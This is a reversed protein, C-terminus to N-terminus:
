ALSEGSPSLERSDGQEEGKAFTEEPMTTINDPDYRYKPSQVHWDTMRSLDHWGAQGKTLGAVHVPDNVLKGFARTEDLESCEFWLHEKDEPSDAGDVPYGLKIFFSWGERGRFKEFARRFLDFRATALREMRRTEIDSVYLVPNRSMVVLARRPSVYRRFPWSGRREVLVGSPLRHYDDRDRQRTGLRGPMYRGAEPWPIWEMEIGDGPSFPTRPPETGHDIAGICVTEMLEVILGVAQRPADIFEFEVSGCRLLGHTHLWMPGGPDNQDYVTHISFLNRPHPPVDCAAVERLWAGSHVVCSSLDLCAPSGPALASVVRALRHFGTLPNRGLETGAGIAWPTALAAAREAEPLRRSEFHWEELEMRRQLWVEYREKEQGAEWQVEIAAKWKEASGREVPIVAWDTVALRAGAQGSGAQPSSASGASSAQAGALVDSVSPPDAPPGGAFAVLRSALRQHEQTESNERTGNM